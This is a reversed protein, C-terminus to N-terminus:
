MKERKLQLSAKKLLSSFYRRFIGFKRKLEMCHCQLRNEEVDIPSKLKKKKRKLPGVLRGRESGPGRREPTTTRGM